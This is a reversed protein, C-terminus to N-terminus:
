ATAQSGGHHSEFAKWFSAVAVLVGIVVASWLAAAVASFGLVWPSIVLWLGVLAIVWEQWEAFRLLAAVALGAVVIATIWANWAAIFSGTAEGGGAAASTGAYQLAWPSIFLLVALVVNAWDQWGSKQDFTLAM